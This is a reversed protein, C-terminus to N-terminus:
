KPDRVSFLGTVDALRRLSNGDPVGSADTGAYGLQRQFRAYALLTLRDFKRPEANRLGAVLALGDQVLGVSRNVNGPRVIREDIMETGSGLRRVPWSKAPRGFGLIENAHRTRRFVGTKDKKARPMGSNIQAEITKVTQTTRWGSVDVVIGVHLMGFREDTPFAFFV